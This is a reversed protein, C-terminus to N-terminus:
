DGPPPNQVPTAPPPTTTAQYPPPGATTDLCYYRVSKFFSALRGLPGRPKEEPVPSAAFAAHAMGVASPNSTHAFAARVQPDRLVWLAWLGAFIGLPFAPSWPLFALVAATVAFEYSRFKRMQWAGFAVLAAPVGVAFFLGPYVDGIVHTFGMPGLPGQAPVPVMGFILAWGTFALIATVLLGASAGAVRLRSMELDFPHM